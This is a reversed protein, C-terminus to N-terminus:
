STSSTSILLEGDSLTIGVYFSNKPLGSNSYVSSLSCCAVKWYMTTGDSGSYTGYKYTNKNNDTGSSIVSPNMDSIGQASMANSIAKDTTNSTFDAYKLKMVTAASRDVSLWWAGRLVTAIEDTSLSSLGNMYYLAMEESTVDDPVRVLSVGSSNSSIQYVKNSESLTDYITTDSDGYLDSLLPMNRDVPTTLSRVVSSSTNGANVQSAVISIIIALIVLGAIGGILFARKLMSTGRPDEYVSGYLGSPEMSFITDSTLLPDMEDMDKNRPAIYEKKFKSFLSM